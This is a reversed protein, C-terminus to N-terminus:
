ADIETSFWLTGKPRFFRKGALSIYDGTKRVEIPLHPQGFQQETIQAICRVFDRQEFSGYETLYPYYEPLLVNIGVGEKHLLFLILGELAQDQASTLPKPAQATKLQILRYIQAGLWWLFGLFLFLLIFRIM